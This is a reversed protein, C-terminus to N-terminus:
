KKHYYEKLSINGYTVNREINEKNILLINGNKLITKVKYNANNFAVNEGIIVSKDIYKKYLDNIDIYSNYKEIFDNLLTDLNTIKKTEKYISTAVISINKFTNQNINIGIGVILNNIDNYGISEILIGSIKQKKVVIDNPYKIEAEVNYKNLIEIISVSCKMIISFIESRRLDEKLLFSFYLNGEESLWTNGLRGKGKSQTKAVVMDGHDLKNINNRIFTNTSEINNFRLIKKGIM